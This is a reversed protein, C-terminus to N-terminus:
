DFSRAVALTEELGLSTELRYTLGDRSWILVNGRVTFREADSGAVVLLEHPAHIWFARTGDVTVPTTDEFREVTKVVIDPEDPAVLLALGWPTGPLRPYVESAEWAVLAAAGLDIAYAADPPPGAPLAVDFGLEAEVEALPRPDGFADPALPPGSPSVRPQVRIEAAGLLQRAAFAAGLAALLGLAVVALLRRRRWLAARPFPPRSRAARDLELRTTVATAFAPTPPFVVDRAAEALARGLAEDSWRAEPM